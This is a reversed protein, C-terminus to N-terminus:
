SEPEALVPLELEDDPALPLVWFPWLPPPFPNLKGPDCPDEEPDLANNDRSSSLLFSGVHFVQTLM